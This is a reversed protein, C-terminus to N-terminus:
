SVTEAIASIEDRLWSHAPECEDRVHWLLAVQFAPVDLPPAAVTLGWIRSALRAIRAPLTALLPTEKLIPPVSGYRPTSVAIRREVGLTALVQDLPGTREESPSVAIHLVETYRDLTLPQAVRLRAPDYLCAYRELFLPTNRYRTPVDLFIGVAADIRGADLLSPARERDVSRAVLQVGPATAVLRAVLPALLLVETYDTMGLFFTRQATAPDFSRRQLITDRIQLLAERVPGALELALPTPEMGATGRVLV